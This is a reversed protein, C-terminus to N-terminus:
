GRRAIAEAEPHDHDHGHHHDSAPVFFGALAIFAVAVAIGKKVTQRRPHEAETACCDGCAKAKHPRFALFLTLAAMALSFGLLWPRYPTLGELWVIGSGASGLLLALNLGCCPVHALAALSIAGLSSFLTKV